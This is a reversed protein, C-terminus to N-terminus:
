LSFDSDTFKASLRSVYDHLEGDSRQREWSNLNLIESKTVEEVVNESQIEM